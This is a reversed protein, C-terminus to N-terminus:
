RDRRSMQEDDDYGRKGHDPNKQGYDIPKSRGKRGGTQRQGSRDDKPNRGPSQQKQQGRGGIGENRMRDDAM